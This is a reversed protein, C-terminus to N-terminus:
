KSSRYGYFNDELKRNDNRRKFFEERLQYTRISLLCNICFIVKEYNKNATIDWRGM